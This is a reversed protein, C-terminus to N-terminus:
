IDRNLIHILANKLALKYDQSLHTDAELNYNQQM